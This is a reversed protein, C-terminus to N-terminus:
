VLRGADKMGRLTVLKVFTSMSIDIKKSAKEIAKYDEDKFRVALVKSVGTTKKKNTM